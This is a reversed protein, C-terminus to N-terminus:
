IDIRAQGYPPPCSHLIDKRNGYYVNGWDRNITNFNDYVPIRANFNITTSTYKKLYNYLHQIKALWVNRPVPLFRYLVIAAYMIDIRGLAVAWQTKGICKWYQAKEDDNCIDTIDLEPNCYHPMATNQNTTEFGFNNKFNNMMHKVFTNSVWM